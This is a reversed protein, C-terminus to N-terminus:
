LPLPLLLRDEATLRWAEILNLANAAFNAQTLMAGKPRGTTGSTYVLSAIDDDAPAPLSQPRATTTIAEALESTLHLQPKNDAIAAAVMEESEPDAFVVKPAADSLIHAIEDRRYLINIPTFVFGVKVAALYILVLTPSN